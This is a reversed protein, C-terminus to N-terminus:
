IEDRKRLSAEIIDFNALEEIQFNLQEELNDIELVAICLSEARKELEEGRSEMEHEIQKGFNKMRTEFADMNGDSFLMEQGIAIMLTGISKEMTSEVAKEIREEFNEGFFEAGAFGEENIHFAKNQSFRIDVENKIDALHGTLEAGVANGEGLLENFALNVGDTALEIGEIAIEKVEPIMARISTSYENVLSQQSPSLSIQNGSIILADDNVIKYLPQDAKFFEIESQTVRVGGNLEVNCSDNSFSSDHAFVNSSALILVSAILTKM